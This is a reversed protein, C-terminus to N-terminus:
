FVRVASSKFTLYVQSDLNLGMEEFSKRTILAVLETGVDVCLRVKEGEAMIKTVKGMFSNRASSELQHHSLIIDEPDISVHARGRRETVLAIKVTPSIAMLKLGDAGEIQGSFFNEPTAEVVKGDVLSLIEDALRYAQLLNHTTFIITIGQETNLRRILSEIAGGNTRDINATPEDLLLVKPRLALARAIAVRQAEGGSLSAAKRNEFGLLGVTELAEFVRRKMVGKDVSRIRLGYAVNKSVTTHFLLPDQAVMTMQRRIALHSGSSNTVERGEFFIKGGSPEELLNLLNLLTTKGSGNPGVLAYIKGAEFGLRPIDLVLKGDYRKKLGEMRFLLEEM